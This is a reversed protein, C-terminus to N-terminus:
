PCGAEFAPSSTPKRLIWYYFCGNVCVGPTTVAAAQCASYKKDLRAIAETWLPEPAARSIRFYVGEAADNFYTTTYVATNNLMKFKNAMEGAFIIQQSVPAAPCKIATVASGLIGSSLDGYLPFPVNPNNNDDAGNSDVDVKGPYIQICETIAAQITKIDSQLYLTMEDLHQTSASKQSGKSLAAVLLGTLFLAILLYMVINGDQNKRKMPKM